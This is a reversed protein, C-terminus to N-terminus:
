GCRSFGCDGCMFCGSSSTLNKSGCEECKLNTEDTYKALVRNVAKSFSVISTESKSLQETVFKLPTSARLHLSIIRTLAQEEASNLKTIDELLLDDCKFNYHKSKIKTITGKTANITGDYKVAFLEYPKENLLGVLLLWKDGNIKVQHINNSLTKPRKLHVRNSDKKSETVLVGDRSGSVYVTLGKLGMEWAREYIEAVTEAKVTEPLNITSSISHTIYKQCISQIEVRKLWDLDNATSNYYPSNESKPDAKNVEAWELLGSHYVEFETWADGMEDTFDIKANKDGPNIKKRRIHWNAFLPEIGSSTGYRNTLKALLSLSGSPAVTSLSLNRRGHKMMRNWIDPFEEVLM